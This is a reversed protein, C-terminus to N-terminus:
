GIVAAEGLITRTVRAEFTPNRAGGSHGVNFTPTPCQANPTEGRDKLMSINSNRNNIKAVSRVAVDSRAADGASCFIRSAILDGSRLTTCRQDDQHELLKEFVAFRFPRM